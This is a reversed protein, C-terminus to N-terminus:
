HLAGGAYEERLEAFFEPGYEPHEREIQEILLYASRADPCLALAFVISMREIPRM